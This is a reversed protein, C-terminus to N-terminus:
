EEHGLQVFSKGESNLKTIRSHTQVISCSRMLWRMLWMERRSSVLVDAVYGEALISIVFTLRWYVYNCGISRGLICSLGRIMYTSPKSCFVLLLTPCLTLNVGEFLPWPDSLTTLFVLHTSKMNVPSSICIFTRFM